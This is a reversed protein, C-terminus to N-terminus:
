IKMRAVALLEAHLRQPTLELEESSRSGQQNDAEGIVNDGTIAPLTPYAPNGAYLRIKCDDNGVVTAVNM